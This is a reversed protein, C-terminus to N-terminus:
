WDFSFSGKHNTGSVHIIYDGETALRVSDTFNGELIIPNEADGNKVATVTGEASRTIKVSFVPATPLEKPYIEAYVEGSDTTVTVAIDIADKVNISYHKHGNFLDYGAGRKTKENEEHWGTADFDSKGCSVASLLLAFVCVVSLMLAILRKFNM